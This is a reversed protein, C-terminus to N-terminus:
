VGFLVGDIIGQEIENFDSGKDIERLFTFYSESNNSKVTHENKGFLTKAVSGTWLDCFKDQEINEIMIEYKVDRKIEICKEFIIEILPDNNSIIGLLIKNENILFENEGKESVKVNINIKKRQDFPMSSYDVEKLKKSPIHLGCLYLGYLIANRNCIIEVMTSNFLKSDEHKYSIFRNLKYSKQAKTTSKIRQSITNGHNKLFSNYYLIADNYKKQTNINDIYKNNKNISLVIDNGKELLNNCEEFFTKQKYVLDSKDEDSLDNSNINNKIEQLDLLINEIKKTYQETSNQLDKIENDKNEFLKSLYEDSILINNKVIIDSLKDCNTKLYNQILNKNTKIKEKIEVSKEKNSDSICNILVKLKELTTIEIIIDDKFSNSEYNISEIDHTFHINSQTNNKDKKILCFYCIFDKCTKCFYYPKNECYSTLCKINDNYDNPNFEENNELNTELFGENLCKKCILNEKKKDLTIYKTDHESKKCKFSLPILEKIEIQEIQNALLDKKSDTSVIENEQVIIINGSIEPNEEQEPPNKEPISIRKISDGHLNKKLKEIESLSSCRGELKEEQKEQEEPEKKVETSILKDDDKEEKDISYEKREFTIEM